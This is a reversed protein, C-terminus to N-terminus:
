EASRAGCEASSLCSALAQQHVRAMDLVGLGRAIARRGLEYAQQLVAEHKQALYRRLIAEYQRSCSRLRSNMPILVALIVCSSCWRM